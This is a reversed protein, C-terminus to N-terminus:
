RLLTVCRTFSGAYPVKIGNVTMRQTMHTHVQKQEASGREGGDSGQSRKSAESSRRDEAKLVRRWSVARLRPDSARADAPVLVPM